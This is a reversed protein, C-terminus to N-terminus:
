KKRIEGSIYGLMKKPHLADMFMDWEEKGFERILVLIALYIALFLGALVALSYWRTAWTPNIFYMIISTLMAASIHKMVRPDIMAGSLKYAEWRLSITTVLFAIFTAVAAGFAGLGLMQIGLFSVPIFILNLGINLIARVINVAGLIKTRDMAALLDTYPYNLVILAYLLTLVRLTPISSLMGKSLMIVIIKDPFTIIFFAVPFMLMSLFREASVVMSRVKEPNNKTRHYSSLAPFLATSVAVSIMILIMAIKKAAYYDAVDASNWFWQIMVVDTNSAIVIFSTAIALPIAFYTYSKVYKIDPKSIPLKMFFYLAVLIALATGILYASVLALVGISTIAVAIIIVSRSLDNTMRITQAKAIERKGNFTSILGKTLSYLSWYVLSIWIAKEHIPSEFGNGLIHTWIYISIFVTFAFLGILLLKISLYTGNCKGIDKGESIRKTHASDFGLNAIFSFLGVFSIAFAVIGLADKGMYRVVFFMAIYGM